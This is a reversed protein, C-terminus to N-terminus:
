NAAIQGLLRYVSARGIKLAKAIDTAAISFAPRTPFADRSAFAIAARAAFVTAAAGFARGAPQDGHVTEM